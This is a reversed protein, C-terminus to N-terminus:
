DTDLPLSQLEQIRGHIVGIYPRALLQRRALGRAKPIGLQYAALGGDPGFLETCKQLYLNAVRISFDWDINLFDCSVKYGVVTQATDLHVSGCGCGMPDRNHNNEACASTEQLIIGALRYGGLRYAEVLVQKQYVNLSPLSSALLTTRPSVFVLLASMVAALVKNM